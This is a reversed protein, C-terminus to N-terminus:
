RCRRWRIGYIHKVEGDISDLTLLGSGNRNRRNDLRIQSKINLSRNAGCPSWVLASVGLKDRYEYDDDVPGRFTTKLRASGRQGQFYYNSQAVGTVGRDLSVYGRYDVDMISYSWGQPFKLDVNIQCAKRMERRSVDPGAEVVYDDFLLTFAKYDSSIDEMVSGAPCGTGAYKIGEITVWPPSAAMAGTTFMLAATTFLLKSLRKM